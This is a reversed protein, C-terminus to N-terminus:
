CCSTAERGSRSSRTLTGRSGSREGAAFHEQQSTLPEVKMEGHLGHPALVRGVAVHGPCSEEHADPTM